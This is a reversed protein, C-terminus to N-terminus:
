RVKLLKIAMSLAELKPVRNTWISVLYCILPSFEFSKRMPIIKENIHPFCSPNHNRNFIKRAGGKFLFTINDCAVRTVERHPLYTSALHIKVM